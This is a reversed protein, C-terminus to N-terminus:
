SQRYLVTCMCRGREHWEHRELWGEDCVNTLAGWSTSVSVSRTEAPSETLDRRIGQGSHTSGM